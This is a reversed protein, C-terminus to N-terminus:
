PKEDKPSAWGDLTEHRSWYTPFRAVFARIEPRLDCDLDSIFFRGDALRVTQVEVTFPSREAM